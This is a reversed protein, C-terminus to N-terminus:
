GITASLANLATVLGALQATTFTQWVPLGSAFKQAQLFGSSDVPFNSTIWTGVAVLASQMATFAGAVDLSASNVQAQAYAALGPVAAYQTLQTNITVFFSMAALINQASVNGAAIQANMATCQQQLQYAADRAGKWAVDLTFPFAAGNSAPFAM